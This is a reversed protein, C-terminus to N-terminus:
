LRIRESKVFKLARMARDTRFCIQNKLNDPELFRIAIQDATESGTPGYLGDMYTTIVLNTNDNAIKGAIIDYKQWKDVDPISGKKRHGVVCHLWELDADAFEFILLDKELKLDCIYENLYGFDTGARILGDSIAKKVATRTFKVAQTRNTTLYFGRGFDKAPRCKSLEPGTVECYSGHYLKMESQIIM